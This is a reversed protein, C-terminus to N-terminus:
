PDIRFHHSILQRHHNPILNGPDSSHEDGTLQTSGYLGLLAPVMHHGSTLVM